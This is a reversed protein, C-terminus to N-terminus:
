VADSLSTFNFDRIRLAPMVVDGGAETGAVREARGIGELNNLMLLPSENFRFNKIARSIKGNEILFTGDRTLGTYLVTRPDVQRLYFLHTVLVGRQTSAILEETTQTGGALKVANTGADPRQNKKQAWFRGYTLGKLVGNEIWVVRHAPLGQGDFTNSLLQPDAPDSFLTVREDAIKEGVKTGGGPKSFASRGEDASRADLSFALLQVLDGVAQPELIVTYRGPEIAVPNRSLRAKEIARQAVGKVDLQSWDPHDAGAWGSGTGDATRVTLTYNTTTGAQYAFLGASNGVAAAGIGTQLFGAAKLDGAARCPDIAMRAAEARGEPGLNATSDFYTKVNEYQQPGLPPMSEPDDPALKALAESQRVARELGADSFDNTSVVAHKAGFVSQIGLNATSVGGATSIRNDAFRVNAAYGGGLNVQVSEAKSLKIAREVLQQAQERTMVRPDAM